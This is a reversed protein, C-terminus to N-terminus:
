PQGKRDLFQNIRDDLFAGMTQGAQKAARQLREYAVASVSIHPRLKKATYQKQSFKRKM